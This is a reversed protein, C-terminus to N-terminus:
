SNAMLFYSLIRPIRTRNNRYHRYFARSRLAKRVYPDKELSIVMKFVKLENKIRMM